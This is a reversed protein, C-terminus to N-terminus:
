RMYDESCTHVPLTPHANRHRAPHHEASRPTTVFTRQQPRGLQDIHFGRCIHARLHRACTARDKDRLAHWPLHRARVGVVVESPAGTLWNGTTFWQTPTVWLEYATSGRLHSLQGCFSHQFNGLCCLCRFPKPLLSCSSGTFQLQACSVTNTRDWESM